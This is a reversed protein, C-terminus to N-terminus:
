RQRAPTSWCAHAACQLAPVGARMAREYKGIWCCGAGRATASSREPVSPLLYLGCVNIGRTSGASRECTTPGKTADCAFLVTSMKTQTDLRVVLSAALARLAALADDAASVNKSACPWGSQSERRRDPFPRPLARPPLAPPPLSAPLVFSCKRPRVPRMIMGSPSKAM